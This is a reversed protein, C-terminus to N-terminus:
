QHSRCCVLSGHSTHDVDGATNCGVADAPHTLLTAAATAAQDGRQESSFFIHSFSVAAPLEYLSSNEKYWAQLAEESLTVAAADNNLFAMKQAMRRRVILDDQDLNLAIAERYLAEERVFDEVLRTLEEPTPERNWLQQWTAKLHDVERAGVHISDSQTLGNDTEARSGISLYIIFLLGGAIAFHFLPEKWLSTYSNM